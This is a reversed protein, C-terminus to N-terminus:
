FQAFNGKAIIAFDGINCFTTFPSRQACILVGCPATRGTWHATFLRGAKVLKKSSSAKCPMTWSVGPPSIKYLLPIFPQFKLGWVFHCQTTTRLPMRLVTLANSCEAAIFRDRDGAEMNPPCLEGGGALVPGIRCLWCCENVKAGDLICNADRGFRM